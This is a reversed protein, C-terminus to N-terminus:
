AVYAVRLRGEEHRVIMEFTAVAQLKDKSYCPLPCHGRQPAVASEAGRRVCLQLEAVVLDYCLTPGM